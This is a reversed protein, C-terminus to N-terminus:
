NIILKKTIKSNEFQLKIMYVGQPIGQTSIRYNTQNNSLVKHTIEQGILNYLKIRAKQINVLGEIAIYDSNNPKYVRVCSDEPDNVGLSSNEKTIIINDIYIGEKQSTLGNFQLKIDLTSNNSLPISNTIFTKFNSSDVACGNDGTGVYLAPLSNLSNCDGDGNFDTDVAAPTNTIYGNNTSQVWLLNQYVGSDLSYTILLEDSEDWQNYWHSTMDISFTFSTSGSVDIQDVNLYPNSLSGPIDQAAWYYGDVNTVNPLNAYNIRNFVIRYNNGSTGSVSYGSNESEFDITTVQSYSVSSLIMMLLLTIKKIM